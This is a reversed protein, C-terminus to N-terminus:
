PILNLEKVRHQFAESCNQLLNLVQEETPLKFKNKDEKYKMNDDGTIVGFSRGSVTKFTEQNIKWATSAFYEDVVFCLIEKNNHELIAFNNINM